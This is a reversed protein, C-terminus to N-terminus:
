AFGLAVISWYISAVQGVARVKFPWDKFQWKAGNTFVAVVRAWDQM